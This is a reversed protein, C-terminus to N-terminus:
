QVVWRGWVATALSIPWWQQHQKESRYQVDDYMHFVRAVGVGRFGEATRRGAAASKGAEGGTGRM